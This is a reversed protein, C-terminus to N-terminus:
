GEKRWMARERERERERRSCPVEAEEALAIQGSPATEIVLCAQPVCFAVVKLVRYSTPVIPVDIVLQDTGLPIHSVITTIEHAVLRHRKDLVSRFTRLGEESVNRKLLHVAWKLDILLIAVHVRVKGRPAFALDQRPHDRVGILHNAIDNRRKRRRPQEVVRDDDKASVLAHM